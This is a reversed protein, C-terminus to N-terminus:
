RIGDKEATEFWKGGSALGAIVCLVAAVYPLGVCYFAAALFAFTLYAYIYRLPMTKEEIM